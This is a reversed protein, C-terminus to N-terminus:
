DASSHELQRVTASMAGSALRIKIEEGDHLNRTTSIVTGDQNFVIAYGRELVAQPGLLKLKDNARALRERLSRLRDESSRLLSASLQDLSAKRQPLITPIHAFIKGTATRVHLALDSSLRQPYSQVMQFLNQVYARRGQILTDGPSAIFRNSAIAAFRHRYHSLMNEMTALMRSKYFAISDRLRSAEQVVCKAADTPTMARCDAVEDCLTYDREHGVASIVPIHSAAIARVLNEDNFASLDEKSGGGRTIVIVECLNYVNIYNLQQIISEASANGQMLAPFLLVTLSSQRNGLGHMFDKLAAAGEATILGITKPFSPLRKKRSPLFLGEQGLREILAKLKLMEEGEGKMRLREVSVQCEGRTAYVDVKGYVEVAVGNQFDPPLPERINWNWWVMRLSSVGDKLLFYIGKGQKAPQYDVVEGTVWIRQPFSCQVCDRISQNLESITYVKETQEIPMAM